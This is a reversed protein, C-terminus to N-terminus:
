PSRDNRPRCGDAWGAAAATQGSADGDLRFSRSPGGQVVAARGNGLGKHGRQVPPDRQAVLLSLSSVLKTASVVVSLYPAAIEPLEELLGPHVTVAAPRHWGQQRIRSNLLLLLVANIGASRHAMLKANM